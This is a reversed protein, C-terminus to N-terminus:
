GFNVDYEASPIWREHMWVWAHPLAMIRRSLEGNIRMTLDIAAEEAQLPLGKASIRTATVVLSAGRPAVTGVVVAAGTRLAIRAPGVATSAPHGLFPAECSSVRARLDMPFGLVGGGRLARVIRATTKM